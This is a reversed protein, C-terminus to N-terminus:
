GGPWGKALSPQVPHTLWHFPTSIVGGAEEVVKAVPGAVRAIRQSAQPSIDLPHDVDGSEEAVGLRFCRDELSDAEAAVLFEM